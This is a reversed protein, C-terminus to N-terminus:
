KPIKNLLDITKNDFYKTTKGGDIVCSEQNKLLIKIWKIFNVGFGFRELVCILFIHNVSDFTKEIDVTMLYGEIYNVALKLFDSIGGKSKFRDKVFATQNASVPSPIANKLKNALAKSILKADVNLM